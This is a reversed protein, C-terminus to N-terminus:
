EIRITPSLGIREFEESIIGKVKSVDEETTLISDHITAIFTGYHEEMLRRCIRSIMLKSETRQMMWALRRYDKKKVALLKEAVSPFLDCFLRSTRKGFFTERFFKEKFGQRDTDGSQEMLYDYLEGKEVLGKYKLFDMAIDEFYISFTCRISSSPFLTPILLLPQSNVIDVNVLKNGEYFLYKRLTSKLNTINTHIRGYNDSYLFFDKDRFKDISIKCCNYENTPLEDVYSLAGGYNITIKELFRYLYNHVPTNPLRKAQWKDINKQVARSKLSIQKHRVNSYPECLRYGFSKENKVFYNDCEIIKKDVLLKVYENYNRVILNRLYAAKLPVFNNTSKYMIRQEYILHILYHLRDLDKANNYEQPVLTILNLNSPIYINKM